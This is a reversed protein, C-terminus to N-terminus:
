VSIQNVVRMRAVSGGEHAFVKCEVSKHLAAKPPAEPGPPDYWVLCANERAHRRQSRHLFTHQHIPKWPRALNAVYLKRPVATTSSLSSNARGPSKLSAPSQGTTDESSSLPSFLANFM